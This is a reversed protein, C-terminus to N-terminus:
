SSKLGEVLYTPIIGVFAFLSTDCLAGYGEQDGRDTSRLLRGRRV